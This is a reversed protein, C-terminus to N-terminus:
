PFISVIIPQAWNSFLANKVLFIHNIIHMEVHLFTTASSQTNSFFVSLLISSSWSHVHEASIEYNDDAFKRNSTTLSYKVISCRFQLFSSVIQFHPENKPWWKISFKSATPETWFTLLPPRGWVPGENLFMATTQSYIHLSVEMWRWGDYNEVISCRLKM